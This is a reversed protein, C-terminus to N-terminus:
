VREERERDISTDMGALVGRLDEMKRERVMEIRDGLSVMVFREGPKINQEERIKKPISIQYKSSITVTQM